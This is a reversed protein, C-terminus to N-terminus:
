YSWGRIDWGMQRRWGLRWRSIFGEEFIEDKLLISWKSYAASDEIWDSYLFSACYVLAYCLYHKNLLVIDDLPSSLRSHWRFSGLLQILSGYYEEKVTGCSGYRQTYKEM